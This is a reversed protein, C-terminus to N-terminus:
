KVLPAIIQSLIDPMATDRELKPYREGNQYNVQITSYYEGNKILLDVPKMVKIADHLVEPTFQRSNVAVLKVSPSLGAKHAPGGYTVDAVAGDQSVRFGLSYSLDIVKRAAERKKWYEGPEASYALKWGSKQIGGLPAHADTSHLRTNLFAAWDYPQVAKLAAVVDDFTYTKMAPAGGPGGHFSRCFDNLSKAGKSLQRIMV